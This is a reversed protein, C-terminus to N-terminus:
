VLSNACHPVATPTPSGVPTQIPYETPTFISTHPLPRFVTVGIMPTSFTDIYLFDRHFASFNGCYLTISSYQIICHRISINVAM